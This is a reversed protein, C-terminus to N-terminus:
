LHVSVQLGPCGQFRKPCPLPLLLLPIYCHDYAMVPLLQRRALYQIRLMVVKLPGDCDQLRMRKVHFLHVMRDVDNIPTIMSLLCVLHCLIDLVPLHIHHPLLLNALDNSIQRGGDVQLTSHRTWGPQLALPSPLIGLHAHRQLPRHHLPPYCHRCLHHLICLYLPLRLRNIQAGHILMQCKNVRFSTYKGRAVGFMTKFSPLSVTEQMAGTGDKADEESARRLPHRKGLEGYSDMDVEEDGQSKPDFRSQRRAPLTMAPPIPRYSSPPHVLSILPNLNNEPSQSACPVKQPVKSMERRALDLSLTRPHQYSLDVSLDVVIKGAEPDVDNQIGYPKDRRDRDQNEVQRRSKGQALLISQRKSEEEDEAAQSIRIPSFTSSSMAVDTDLTTNFPSSTTTSPFPFQNEAPSNVLTFPSPPYPYSYAM